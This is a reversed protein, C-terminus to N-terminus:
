KASRNKVEEAEVIRIHKQGLNWTSMLLDKEEEEQIRKYAGLAAATEGYQEALRGLGYWIPSDPEDLGSLLITHLLLDYAEKTKGIEAYLCALTHVIGYNMNQTMGSARQVLEIDNHDVKDTFLADWGYQNMDSATARGSDILQKLVGRAEVFRGSCEFFLARASLAAHDEPLRELRMGIAKEWIGLDKTKRASDVVCAFAYESTPQAQLMQWSLEKMAGWQELARYASLLMAQAPLKNAASAPGAAAKLESLYPKIFETDTILSLAAMRMKAADAPDDRSWLKPFVPWAYPDDGGPRNLEERAWDLWQKSAALNGEKIQRLAEVGVGGMDAGLGVVWYKGGVRSVFATQTQAGISQVRIRYGRQDDGQISMRMNSIMFDAAVIRPMDLREFVARMVGGQRAIVERMKRESGTVVYKFEQVPDMNVSEPDLMYVFFRQIASRPDEEKIIQTHPKTNRFGQVQGLIQAANADGEATAAILDAYAAYMRMNLLISAAVKLAPNRDANNKSIESSKQIAAEPGNVAAIIAISFALRQATQPLTALMAQAENFQRSYILNFLINDDYLLTNDKSVKGIRRYTEIAESLKAKSSYRKGEGDHELHIALEALGDPDAPDLEQAKQLAALAGQWDFGKNFRRGILDHQLIWGLNRYGIASQPQLRVAERAEERAQEGLGVRLLARALRVRPLAEKSYKEASERYISLAARVKGSSLESAGAPEFNVMLADAKQVDQIAKRASLAESATYRGRVSDIRLLGHVTGDQDVEFKQTMLAPGISLSRDAPVNRIRFGPPAAVSYRWETIFPEFVIDATRIKKKEPEANNGSSEANEMELRIYAPFRSFFTDFRIAAVATELDTIGRKAKTMELKISFPTNVDSGKGLESTSLADALYESKVYNNLLERIEKSDGSGYEARYAAEITGHPRSIETIRAPGFDSMAFNREESLLNDEPKGEPTKLLRSSDPSIVLAMRGQDMYPIGATGFEDTADIWMDPTGPAYVIAHDFIGIGPYESDVDLGPGTSLLALYASIGSARLLAVLAAAKDKCDGYKDRFTDEPKRPIFMAKGFEIGTYRVESHLFATLSRITELRDKGAHKAAISKLDAAAIQKEVIQNYQAAVAQWSPATSVVVYPEPATDSPLNPEQGEFAPLQMQEFTLRVQHNRDERKVSLNPLGRVEYKLPMSSPAEVVIRRMAVPSSRKFWFRRAIGAAFLPEKDEVTVEEDVVAGVMVAPLPGSYNREDNFVQPRNDNAPVDSLAKTELLHEVGDPTVVRARIFPRRQYWPSWNIGVASWSEVADAADIRYVMHHRYVVRNSSDIKVATEYLLINVGYLNKSDVEGASQLLEKASPAFAEQAIAPTGAICAFILVIISSRFILMQEGIWIEPDLASTM